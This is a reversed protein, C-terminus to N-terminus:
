SCLVCHVTYSTFLLRHSCIDKCIHTHAQVGLQLQKNYKMVVSLKSTRSCCCPRFRGFGLCHSSPHQMTLSSAKAGETFATKRKKHALHGQRFDQLLLDSGGADLDCRETLTLRNLAATNIWFSICSWIQTHALASRRM